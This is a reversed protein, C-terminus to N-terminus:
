LSRTFFLAIEQNPLYLDNFGCYVFGQSKAFEICPHNTTPIEFIIHNLKKETAWLQAVDVLRSGLHEGRYPKDIVIDQLYALHYIQDVRMSIYGLLTDSSSEILIIFCHKQKITLELRKADSQHSAELSRPLRQKRLTIQTEDADERVNMQWVHDTHYSSDLEICKSIDEKVGDRILLNPQESMPM